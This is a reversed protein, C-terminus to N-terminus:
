NKLELIEITGLTASVASISPAIFIGIIPIILMLTFLSGSVTLFAKNERAFKLSSKSDYHHRELTYDMFSYGIYYSQITLIFLPTVIGVIPLFGLILALLTLLFEKFFCKLSIKIGRMVFNVNEKLSFRFEKGRVYVETKESIYALFPALLILILAKYILYYVIFVILYVSFKIIPFLISKYKELPVLDGTKKFIEASLNKTFYVLFLLACINLLGPLLFYKKMKHRRIFNIAKLHSLLALKIQKTM